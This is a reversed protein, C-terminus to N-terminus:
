TRSAKDLEERYRNYMSVTDRLAEELRRLGDNQASNAEARKLDEWAAEFRDQCEVVREFMDLTVDMSVARKGHELVWQDLRSEAVIVEGVLRMHTVGVKRSTLIEALV